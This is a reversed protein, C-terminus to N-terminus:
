RTFPPPTKIDTLSLSLNSLTFSALFNTSKPKSIVGCVAGGVFYFGESRRNFTYVLKAFRVIGYLKYFGAVDVVYNVGSGVLRLAYAVKYPQM